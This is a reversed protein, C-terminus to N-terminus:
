KCNEKVWSILYEAIETNSIERDIYNDVRWHEDYVDDGNYTHIVRYEDGLYTVEFIRTVTESHYRLEVQNREDAEAQLQILTNKISQLQKIQEDLHEQMAAIRFEISGEVNAPYNNRVGPEWEPVGGLAEEIRLQKPEEVFKAWPNVKHETPLGNWYFNSPANLRGKLGDFHYSGFWEPISANIKYRGREVRTICGLQRLQGLYLHLTYNPNKNSKKFWTLNEYKGIRERMHKTTFIGTSGWNWNDNIYEKLHSFLTQEKM